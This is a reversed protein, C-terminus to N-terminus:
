ERDGYEKLYIFVNASLLVESNLCMKCADCSVGHLVQRALSGSIHAVSYVEMDGARVTAGTDKQVQQAVHFSEPVADPTEKGHSSSPNPSTADPARLLSQLNNLLTAGDDECNTECVGRFALGSIISTKLADVFLGVTSNNNSVSYSRIAGFINELPDQNLNRTHLCKFSAEQM